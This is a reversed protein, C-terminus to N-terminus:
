KLKINIIFFFLSAILPFVQKIHDGIVGHFFDYLGGVLLEAISQLGTPVLSLQRTAAISFIILIAMVLYTTLLANTIPFTGAITWLTEAALSIHPM